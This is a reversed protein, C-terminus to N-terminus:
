AVVNIEEELVEVIIFRDVSHTKAVNVVEDMCTFFVRGDVPGTVAPRFGM